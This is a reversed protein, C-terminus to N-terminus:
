PVVPTPMMTTAPPAGYIFSDWQCGSPYGDTSWAGDGEGYRNYEWAIYSWAYGTVTKTGPMCTGGPCQEPRSAQCFEGAKEGGQCMYPKVVKPKCLNGAVVYEYTTNGKADTSIPTDVTPAPDGKYRAEGKGIVVSMGTRKTFGADWTERVRAYQQLESFRGSGWTPLSGYAYRYRDDEAHAAGVTVLVVAMLMMLRTMGDGTRMARREHARPLAM